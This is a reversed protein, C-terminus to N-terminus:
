RGCYRDDARCVRAYMSFILAAPPYLVLLRVALAEHRHEERFEGRKGDFHDPADELECPINPTM